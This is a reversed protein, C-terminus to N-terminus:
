FYKLKNLSLLDHPSDISHQKPLLFMDQFSSQSRERQGLCLYRKFNLNISSYNLLIIKHTNSIQNKIYDEIEASGRDAATM